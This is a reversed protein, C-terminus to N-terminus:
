CRDGANTSGLSASADLQGSPVTVPVPSPTPVSGPPAGTEAAVIVTAPVPAPAPIDPGPQAPPRAPRREIAPTDVGPRREALFPALTGIIAVIPVIWVVSVRLRNRRVVPEIPGDDIPLESGNDDPEAM